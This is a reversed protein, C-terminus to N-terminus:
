SIFPVFMLLSSVVVFCLLRLSCVPFWFGQLTSSAGFGDLPVLNFCEGLELSHVQIPFPM